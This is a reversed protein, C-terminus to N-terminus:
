RETPREAPLEFRMGTLSESAHWMRARGGPGLHRAIVPVRVPDGRLLFRLAYLAGGPATPDTAARLQPMAGRLPTSGFRDVFVAFFRQGLAPAERVSRAQLDTRAFGPDAAVSRVPLGAASLRAHLEVAFQLAALKSRGYALWADYGREMRPDDLDLPRARFRGTSTLSVIRGAASRALAPLLAATLAFHGLHNVALQLEHGDPSMRRPTAMIGANNVLIDITPHAAAVRGAAARVSELSALDLEVIELSAAPVSRLVTDRAAEGRAPDRVAMVVHARRRALVRATELGLGGNAGTVVAVRGSLDPIDALRWAM